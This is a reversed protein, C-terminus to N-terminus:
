LGPIFRLLDQYTAFVMLLMLLALGVFQAMGRQEPALPKRRVAEFIMLIIWFGDLLPIPFLNFLGLNINLLVAWRILAALGEQAAAGTMVVIGVPGSVEPQVKGTIMQGLYDLILVSWRWTEQIAAKIATPPALARQEHLEAGIMVSEYEANYRPTVVLGIEEDGRKVVMDLAQGDHTRIFSLVEDLSKVPQGEISLFSDGPMLGGEAAPSDPAVNFVTPPISITMLYIAILLFATFLNMAPGSFIILIRQWLPKHDFREEPAPIVEVDAPTDDMGAMRVFGGLPFYRISYRTGRWFKQWLIPGYGLAFDFVRVGSLKAAAFHGLEHLFILAGFVVIVSLVTSSASLAEQWFVGTNM